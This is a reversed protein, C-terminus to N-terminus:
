GVFIMKVYSPCGLVTLAEHVARAVPQMKKNLVDIYTDAECTAM